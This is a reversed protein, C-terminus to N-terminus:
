VLTKTVNDMNNHFQWAFMSERMLCVHYVPALNYFKDQTEKRLKNNEWFSCNYNESCDDLYLSTKRKEETAESTWKEVIFYSTSQRSAYVDNWITICNM